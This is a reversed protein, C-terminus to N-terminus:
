EETSLSLATRTVSNITPHVDVLCSAMHVVNTNVQKVPTHLFHTNHFGDLNLVM